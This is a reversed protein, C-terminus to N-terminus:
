HTAQHQRGGPPEGGSHQRGRLVEGVEVSAGLAPLAPLAPSGVGDTLQGQGKVGAEQGVLAGGPGVRGLAAEERLAGGDTM